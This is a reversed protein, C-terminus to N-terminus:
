KAPKIKAAVQSALDDANLAFAARVKELHQADNQRWVAHLLQSLALYNNKRVFSDNIRALALPGARDSPVNDKYLDDIIDQTCVFLAVKYNPKDEDKPKLTSAKALTDLLDPNGQTRPQGNRGVDGMAARFLSEHDPSAATLKALVKENVDLAVPGRTLIRLAKLLPEVGNSDIWACALVSQLDDAVNGSPEKPCSQRAGSINPDNCPDASQASAPLSCLTCTFMIACVGGALATLRATGQVLNSRPVCQKSSM